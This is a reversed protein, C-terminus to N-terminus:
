TSYSLSRSSMSFDNYREIDLCFLPQDANWEIPLVILCANPGLHQEIEHTSLDARNGTLCKSSSSFLQREQEASIPTDRLLSRRLNSFCPGHKSSLAFCEIGINWVLLSDTGATQSLDTCQHSFQHPGFGRHLFLPGTSRAVLSWDNILQRNDIRYSKITDLDLLLEAAAVAQGDPVTCKLKLFSKPELVEVLVDGVTKPWIKPSTSHCLMNGDLGKNGKDGAPM